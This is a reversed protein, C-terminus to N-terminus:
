IICDFLSYKFNFIMDKMEYNQQQVSTYKDVPKEVPWIPYTIISIITLSEFPPYVLM